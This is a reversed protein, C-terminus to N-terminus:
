KIIKEWQVTIKTIVKYKLLYLDILLRDWYLGDALSLRLYVLSNM